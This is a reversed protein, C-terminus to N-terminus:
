PAVAEEPDGAADLRHGAVAGIRFLAALHVALDFEEPGACARRYASGIPAGDRLARLFLAAGPSLRRLEVAERPRLVLVDGGEGAPGCTGAEGDQNARWIELVPFPSSVLRLSPHLDLVVEAVRGPPIDALSGIAAPEADAAHYARSWAWELRAVDGLCPVVRAPGFGDVHDAFSEGYNLMVPTKPLERGVYERAMAQFFEDGVLRATVPYTAALAEVLSVHVNNRYVSFRRSPVEGGRGAVGGPPPLSADRLARVFQAQTASPM